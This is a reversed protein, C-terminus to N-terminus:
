GRASIALRMLSMHRNLMELLVQYDGSAVVLEAIENDASVVTTSEYETARLNKLCDNSCVGDTAISERVSQLFSASDVRKAQYGPISAGAINQSALEARRFSLDLVSKVVDQINIADINM